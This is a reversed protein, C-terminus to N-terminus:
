CDGFGSCGLDAANRGRAQQHNGAFDEPVSSSGHMVMHLGPLRRHIEGFLMWRWFTGTRSARSNTLATRLELRLRWLTWRRREKVFREAEEPDTLLRERSLSGEFGHGDEAEGAGTELSGLCGLEGEVSVGVMHATESVRRTVKANYDYDAPTKADEGLSGDMMVSTFGNAIASLCTRPATQRPGPPRLDSIAPHSEAAALM